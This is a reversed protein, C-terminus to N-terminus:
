RNTREQLIAAAPATAAVVRALADPTPARHVAGPPVERGLDDRIRGSLRLAALSDGGLAFFDDEVRVEQHGTLEEFLGRLRELIETPAAAASAPHVAAVPAPALLEASLPTAATLTAATSEPAAAWSELLSRLRALIRRAAAGDVAEPHHDLALHLREDPAVTLKLPYHYADRGSFGTVRVGGAGASEAVSQRSPYSQFVVCSDFLPGLGAARQIAALGLHRHDGLAAQEQQLRTLQGDFPQESEIRVRVPVTSILPGVIGAVGPVAAPREAGTAGFVVDTSGTLESLVLAWMGQVVTNLTVGHRRAAAALEATRGTTLEVSVQDPLGARHEGPVALTPRLGEGLAARWAAEAAERDQEALWGLYDALQAPRAPAAQAGATEAGIRGFLDSLLLPLSWGDLLLHHATVLLATRREPLRVLHFRVLPPRAVDFRRVRERACLADLPERHDAGAERLDTTEWPLPVEEPVAQVLRDGLRAFGARLADHRDLLAGCAARLADEDVAGTLEVTFQVSYVDVEDPDRWHHYLLGEQVPAVPMLERVPGFRHELESVQQQTLDLLPFDAPTRGGADPRRLHAALTRLAMCWEEALERVEAETLLAGAWTWRGVLTPGQPGEVVVADLDLLHPVPQAPDAGLPLVDSEPAPAWDGAPGSAAQRGLYNFGLQPVVRARDQGADYGRGRDPVRRLDEKVRMLARGISEEDPDATGPDLLAPAQSTFWGVTRGLDLEADERGHREVDVLVATGTDAVHRNRWRVAALSLATLLADDVGARYATPVAELLVRTEEPPLQVTLDGATAYTDSADVPHAALPVDVFDAVEQWYPAATDGTEALRRAWTRFSVPVPALVPESGQAVATWAQHLDGLLVPWSVADVALHHVTLLLRGSAEAGADFWVARLLEGQEPDLEGQARAAEVAVAARLGDPDAATVAAESVDVRRLLREASVAGRPGTTLTWDGAASVTLRLRLTDHRDVVAQVAARLSEVDLGAPVRVLTSQTFGRSSGGRDRLARMIPTLPVEGVGADPSEVAAAVATRAIRALAAPTPHAFVERPTLELGAARARAALQISLISDGGLAFFGDDAGVEPLDLLEAFLACLLLENPTAAARGTADAAFVPAPLARRDLKGSPSLPLEPLLVFAAPVLADPLVRTAHARLEEPDPASGPVPVLYAVLRKVGRGDERVVVACLAVEPHEALGAEIEGPEIRRGRIKVQDDARGQYLLQGEPSWRVLDGTRYMRSGPAGFPDPLFREATLAARAHYGRALNTGALYLEGVAGVPLPRLAADLVHVRTNDIPRGIPVVEPDPGDLTWATVDVAAETPGYFNHLATSPLTRAFRAALAPPLAEGSCVVHRLGGCDAAAPSQLFVELMSPVFHVYSIRESRILAALAEPDRHAWPPAVVLAAGVTLPWFFEVVSVDFSSPTKLLVRAGPGSPCQREMWRLRNVIARHPVVVGKPRGTSGSTYLLYAADEPQVGVPLDPGADADEDQATLERYSEPTLTCVPDADALMFAVRDAPYDPDVPLYAAGALHAAYLSVVLEASRELAVAVVRGPAAGLRVLRRALTRAAADLEAYSFRREGDVLAEADPTAAVQAAFLEPLTAPEAPVATDNWADVVQEREAATLLAIRGVLQHPDAAFATLLLELRDRLLAAAPAPFLLPHHSLELRLREGPVAMLSLPYHTSGLIDGAGADYGRVTTAGSRAASTEEADLHGPANEFVTTTDFLQDVRAVRQIDALGVHHHAALLAQQDQLRGLLEVVPLAPDIRLRAPVTNMLLGVIGEVGPLDAPRGSVTVGFVVDDRGTQAALLLGWAGQVLTNLTLGADRAVRGLEATHRASLELTLTQNAVQEAGRAAPAVLTPEAVDALAEAWAAKAAEQDQAALWDLYDRYPAAPPLRDAGDAHLRVLDGLVLPLSWADLLLHHYSFVLVHRREALRVLTCRVLPPRAPDFRHRRECALLEDMAPGPDDGVSLDVEQWPLECSEPVLQVARGSSATVFGARLAQHRALLATCAARLAVPDLPGDFELATQVTYVDVGETDYLAHFLMGEQLPSLPLFEVPGSHAATLEAREADSLELLVRAGTGAAEVPGAEAAVQALASVTKHVFVDRPSLALGEKRARSVLQISIISDGGLAFFNDDVSVEPLELVEAFLRQLVQEQETLAARGSGSSTALAPTPLATRDVKGNRTLPLTDLTVLAAPIMYDPLIHALEARLADPDVQTGPTPVLYGVLQKGGTPLTHALVLAQQLDACAKLATEIETPEIRYGRIKVQQDTRGTFTLRGESWRATDGTRYLRSGPPGYPDPHFHLATQAPEGHYGRALGTGALYLDASTEPPAPQLHQDLLYARMGDLPLGIPMVEPVLGADSVAHRTGIVSAETPGYADVVTIGPVSRLLHRVEGAPVVDGGTWIEVLGALAEPDERAILRFLGATLLLSTVGHVAIHHRLVEPTVDGPAAVVVAGGLTLPTFMEYLSADFAPSAHLLVRRQAAATFGADRVLDAIGGHTLAVGKPEGTSGSTFLLCALQDPLVPAAVVDCAPFEQRPDLTPLDSAHERDTILLQAGSRALIQAHREVPARHDLPVYVGGAKLVALASVVTLPSRELLIAVVPEVGRLRSGVAAALRGAREDLERYSWVVGDAVVAVADPTRGVQGAFLDLLSASGAAVAGTGLALLRGRSVADVVGLRGVTLDLGEAMTTLVQLLSRGLRETAELDFVSARYNLELRLRDGPFASLSLPYHTAATEEREEAPALALGPVADRLSEPQFPLNQFVMTTDFLEPLGTLRQVDALGLYQHAAVAAQERQLETLMEALSAYPDIRLRAPVTNMLLGVVDEVGPLDAPRGSVTVGFVIDQRGTLSGLLLGWAGEVLTNLTLGHRRAVSALAATREEDLEVAHRLPNVQADDGRGPAVLTPETVGDLARRWAREAEARDQAGLWALYDRFGVAPRPPQSAAADGGLRASYLTFLDALVSPLSWGDTVAHHLTFAFAHRDEGLRILTCRMLPPRSMDFRRVRDAALLEGLLARRAGEDPATSLDAEEWPLEVSGAIVQVPRGSGSQTFAARLADHRDLLAACAARLAAVDLPGTMEIATQVTYVDVGDAEFLAHFLLGQQLPALPLLDQAGPSAAMLQAREEESLDLLPAGAAPARTAAGPAPRAAAAAALGAPTRHTFVDQPGLALGERRARSSLQISLISDGGLMFFDDDAFVEAAGLVEVFLGCLLQERDDAPLLGSGGGANFEPEPLARRDVKGNVTKPLAALPVFAAPVMYDPLLASAHARLAAADFVADAATVVYSVLRKVGAGSRDQHVTTAAQAVAPHILLAADVEAPEIRFGRIKVQDDTRGVFALEGDHTWRVLDGTRYMRSGPAGFPDPLFREATLGPHGLYGRALGTGALYLEGAVGVPLPRLAADLVYASTNDIPQGIVPIPSRSSTCVVSEVTCETPGYLNYAHVGATRLADWLSPPVAEGGLAVVRPRHGPRSLLGEALLQVAFSPTTDIVDVQRTALEDLLNAPDGRLGDPIVHLEHGAVMWLLMTWSADFGLANTLAVRLRDAGAGAAEPTFLSDRHSHFVNALARHEVGVGKPRGTSGSTYIVYALHGPRLPEARDADTPAHVATQRDGPAEDPEPDFLLRPVEPPLQAAVSDTTLVLLPRCDDLIAAIRDTPLGIDIPLYVAGAKLVAMIAVILDTSRPMAVAVARDARAGAALLRHALRNAAADLEAYSLARGGSVVATAEPTRAVQAEFLEPLCTDDRRRTTSNWDVLLRQREPATLLAIRGVPLDLDEAFQALLADLRDALLRVQDADVLEPRHSLELCLEEGPFVTLSLPYHTGEPLVGEERFAVKLDFFEWEAGRKRGNIVPANEFVTTTDFLEPLDLLRQIGALGLHQHATLAGQEEQVRALLVALSEAPDIRVRVPVTNMLLGVISEVGPLGAPRGSVTAGFVVDERGTQAALLLAWVTQVVTNLTLGRRQAAGVLQATRETGLRVMVAEPLGPRDMSAGPVLLTPEDLGKLAQQWAAEAAGHDQAGLWSLYHAFPVLPGLEGREGAYIQFLDNLLLPLSWADLLIHHYSVALLHRVGSADDDLRILAFRILPPRAMDFRRTREDALVESARAWAADEDGVDRLDVERWPAECHAAVAQVTQGSRRQVFAARLSAHRDLLATCAARLAAPDLPGTIELLNQVTYVDVGETDYLAHFLMGEQLPTLPLVAELSTKKM